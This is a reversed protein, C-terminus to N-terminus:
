GNVKVLTTQKETYKRELRASSIEDLTARLLFFILLFASPYIMFSFFLDKSIKLLVREEVLEDGGTLYDYEDYFEEANRFLENKRFGRDIELFKAFKDVDEFSSGFFMLYFFFKKVVAPM